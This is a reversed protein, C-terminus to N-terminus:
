AYTGNVAAPDNLTQFSIQRSTGGIGGNFNAVLNMNSTLTFTFNSSTSVLNGNESWNVFTYNSAAIATVTNQFGNGFRGAGTVTGGGVPSAGVTIFSAGDHFQEVAALGDFTTGWGTTGYNYYITPGSLFFTYQGFGPANGVFYISAIDSGAFAYAGLSTVNSGVTVSELGSFQFATEGIATVPLGNIFDPIVASSNTGTYGDITIGDNNTSFSFQAQALPGTLFIAAALTLFVRNM